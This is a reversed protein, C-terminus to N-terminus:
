ARRRRILALGFLGVFGWALSSSPASSCGCGGSNPDVPDSGLDTDSETDEDTDAETDPDPTDDCDDGIGDSDSDTQDPNAVDPCNDITAPTGTGDCDNDASDPIGDGDTDLCDDCADGLGDEDTDLQDANALDPCNDATAVGGENTCGDEAVDGAGDGDSDTCTDCADGIADEDTDLQDPNSVGLCNDVPSPTGSDDCDNDAEDAAGDMDADLCADCADGLGDSDSDTQEPNALGLCNDVPASTGTADCDNDVEDAAGDNDVDLCVDCADGIGDNDTDAQDANPINPCNDNAGIDCSEAAELPDAVGDGDIDLCGDCADGLGDFDTDAQDPNAIDPCNDTGDVACQVATAGPDAAGDGDSDQCVDCADGITDLDADEQGPNATDPCNDVGPLECTLTAGNPDAIGDSDSDDCTDCADGIGDNDLDAQGSNSLIPCNDVTTGGTCGELDTGPDGFGDDDADTCTDCPDGIGDEDADDCLVAGTPDCGDFFGDCDCDVQGPAAPECQDKIGDEDCDEAQSCAQTLIDNLITGLQVADGIARSEGGTAQAVAAASARVATSAGAATLPFVAVGNAQAVDIVYSVAAEDVATSPDGCWAGEDFIPVIVRQHNPNGVSGPQWYNGAVVATGRAWDESGVEPSGPCEAFPGLGGSVPEPLVTGLQNVISDTLCPYEAPTDTLGWLSAQVQIGRAQLDAVVGVISACLAAGEDDMSSSTDMVFVVDLPECTPCTDPIGDGDCDDSGDDVECSDPRYDNDCDGERGLAVSCVDIEGDDNCDPADLFADAECRVYEDVSTSTTVVLRLGDDSFDVNGWRHNQIGTEFVVESRGTDPDITLVENTLRDTVYLAGTQPDVDIGNAAGIPPSVPFAVLEGGEELTFLGNEGDAIWITDQSVTVDYPEALISSNPVLVREPTVGDAVQSSFAWVENPGSYGRDVVIGEGPALLPGTYDLPAFAMGAPDDDGSHLGTVWLERGGPPQYRYINGGYHESMYVHGAPDIAVSAPRDASAIRVPVGGPGIRHLGVATGVYIENDLGIHAGVPESMEISRVPTWGGTSLAGRRATQEPSQPLDPAPTGCSVALVLVTLSLARM